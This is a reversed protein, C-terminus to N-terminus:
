HSNDKPLRIILESPALMQNTYVSRRNRCSAKYFCLIGENNKKLKSIVEAQKVEAQKIAATKKIYGDMFAAVM